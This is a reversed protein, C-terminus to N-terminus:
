QNSGPPGQQPVHETGHIRRLYTSRPASSQGSLCTTSCCASLERSQGMCNALCAFDETSSVNELLRPLHTWDSRDPVKGPGIEAVREIGESALRESTERWRVSGTIQRSLREKLVPPM